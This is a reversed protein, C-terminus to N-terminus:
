RLAHWILAMLQAIQEKREDTATSHRNGQSLACCPFGCYCYDVQGMSIMADVDEVEHSSGFFRETIDGFAGEFAVCCPAAIDSAFKISMDSGLARRFVGALLGGGDCFGCCVRKQGPEWGDLQLLRQVHRAADMANVGNGLMAMAESAPVMALGTRVCDSPPIELASALTGVDLQFARVSRGHRADLLIWDAPHNATVTPLNFPYPTAHAGEANLRDRSVFAVGSHQLLQTRFSQMVGLAPIQRATVRTPSSIRTISDWWAALSDTVPTEHPLSYENMESVDWISRRSGHYEYIPLVGEYVPAPSLGTPLGADTVKAVPGSQFEKGTTRAVSQQRKSDRAPRPLRSVNRTSSGGIRRVLHQISTGALKSRGADTSAGKGLGLLKDQRWDTVMEIVSSGRSIREDQMVSSWADDDEVLHMFAKRKTSHNLIIAEYSEHIVM